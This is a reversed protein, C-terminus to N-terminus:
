SKIGEWPTKIEKLDKMKVEAFRKRPHSAKRKAEYPNGFLFNKSFTDDKIRLVNELLRLRVGM